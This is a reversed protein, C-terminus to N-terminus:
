ETVKKETTEPIEDTGNLIKGCVPCYHIKIQDFVIGRDDSGYEYLTDGNEHYECFKCENEMGGGCAGTKLAHIANSLARYTPEDKPDFCNYGSRLESLIQIDNM